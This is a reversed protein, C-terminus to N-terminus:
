FFARVEARGNVQAGREPRDVVGLSVGVSTTEHVRVDLRSNGEWRAIGTPDATPLLGLLPPGSV